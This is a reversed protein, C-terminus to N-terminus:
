IGGKYDKAVNSIRRVLYMGSLSLLGAIVYSIKGIPSELSNAVYEPQMLRIVIFMALPMLGIIYSNIKSETNSADITNFLDGNEKMQSSINEFTRPWGENTIESHVSIAMSVMKFEPIPIQKTVNEFAESLSQSKKINASVKELVSKLPDRSKEISYDLATLLAKGATGMSSMYDLWEILQETMLDKRKSIRQKLLLNPIFFGVVAVPLSFVIDKLFLQGIFFTLLISVVKFVIYIEPSFKYGAMGIRNRIGEFHDKKNKKGVDVIVPNRLRNYYEQIDKQKIIKSFIILAVSIFILLQALLIYKM